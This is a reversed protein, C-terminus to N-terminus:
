GRRASRSCSRPRSRPVPWPGGVRRVALPSPTSRHRSTWHRSPAAAPLASLAPMRDTRQWAAGLRLWAVRHAVSEAIWAQLAQEDADTWREAADRRALWEAAQVEIARHRSTDMM